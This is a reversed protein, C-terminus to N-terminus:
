GIKFIVSFQYKRKTSAPKNTTFKILRINKYIEKVIFRIYYPYKEIPIEAATGSITDLRMNYDTYLLSNNKLSDQIRIVNVCYKILIGKEDVLVPALAVGEAGNPFSNEPFSIRINPDDKIDFPIDYVQVACTLTDQAWVLLESQAM